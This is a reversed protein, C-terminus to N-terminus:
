SPSPSRLWRRRTSPGTRRDGLAVGHVGADRRARRRGGRRAPVSRRAPQPVRGPLQRRRALADGRRHRRAAGAADAGALHHEVRRRTVGSDVSVFPLHDLLALPVRWWPPGAPGIMVGALVAVVVSTIAVAYWRGNGPLSADISAPVAPSRHRRRDRRHARRANGRRRADRRTLRRPRPGARCCRPGAPRVRRRPSGLALRHRRGDRLRPRGPRGHHRDWGARAGVTALSEGCCKTDALFILDPNAAIITEANLQPYGSVDDAADAINRLGFM